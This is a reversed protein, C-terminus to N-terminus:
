KQEEGENELNELYMIEERGSNSVITVYRLAAFNQFLDVQIENVAGNVV